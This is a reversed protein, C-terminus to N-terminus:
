GGQERRQENQVLQQHLKLSDIKQVAQKYEEIERSEKVAVINGNSDFVAMNTSSKYKRKHEKNHCDMCLGELNDINLTINPNNINGPTIYQKHHCIEAVGGCRECVYNISSMYLGSLSRWDKSTYFKKAYEKM